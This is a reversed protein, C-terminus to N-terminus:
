SGEGGGAAAAFTRISAIDIRFPGEQRSVILGLTTVRSPDLPPHGAVPRGRWVPVFDAFSITVDTWEGPPVVLPAQYSVGDFSASTRIRFGYKKGDSRVRLIFGDFASLDRVQPRSRVSAFGGNNDFSVLGRFSAYGEEIVMGSSSVGGMVADDINPWSESELAFDVIMMTESREATGASVALWCMVVTVVL